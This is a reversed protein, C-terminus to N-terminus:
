YKTPRDPPTDDAAAGRMALEHFVADARESPVCVLRAYQGRAALAPAAAATTAQGRMVCEMLRPADAGRIVEAATDLRCDGPSLNISCILMITSVAGM